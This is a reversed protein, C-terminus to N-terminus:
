RAAQPQRIHFAVDVKDDLTSTDSWEGQGVGFALRSLSFSGDFWRGQPDTTVAFGIPVVVTHGKLVFSGQALFSGDAQSAFHTAEFGAQAFHLADFFGVSRLLENAERSGANVSALAVDVRVSGNEPHAPDFDLQVTFDEFSGHLPTGMQAATFGIAGAEPVRAQTGVAAIVVLTASLLAVSRWRVM